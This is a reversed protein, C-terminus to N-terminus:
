KVALWHEAILSLEITDISCDGNMDLDLDLSCDVQRWHTSLTDIDQMDVRDDRTMDGMHAFTWPSLYSGDIVQQSIAPGQWAVALHDGGTGEKQIVEIYYKQGQQLAISPSQQQSFKNWQYPNTWGPVSAVVVANYALADPSIWLQCNDDGAIWFTYNGTQPPTLYGRIRSGYTNTWDMPGELRPLYECGTPQNPYAANGTLSPVDSGSIGLWYERLVSGLGSNVLEINPQSLTMGEGLYFGPHPPQNYGCPQWAVALRYQPDHMLTYIRYTTPITTTYLRVTRNDSSRWLAEERWDGVIDASLVPNGKTWNNSYTGSASLLTSVTRNASNWKTITGYWQGTSGAHDLLERQLDGDWWIMFNMALSSTGLEVGKSTYMPCNTSGWVEYGLHTPDIDGACARGVDASNAYEFIVEGTAADTLAAGTVATEVCRWLELGPRQPDMDSLHMADGHGQGTSYLGSGDHDVCMGGYVIEDKGDGDVDGVSLNHNGQAAYEPHDESTFHWLKTLQGNRYNWGELKTLAYIGRCIVLSPKHGDLYAVAIHFKNARHGYTDGWQSLSVRPIYETRAIEMGTRGEFVSLFEPGADLFDDAAGYGRYDIIGDADTDGIAAGTADVTGECTRLAVEAFGDGDLDYVIPNIEEKTLLNPGLNIRWLFAGNLRYAEIVPYEEDDASFRKIVLEYAGDGDLDGVAGDNIEYSWDTDGPVQRVAVSYYPNTQVSVVRSSEQEQGSLVARISYVDYLSASSDVYNTSNTIPFTNVKVAGRYINFSVDQPDTGLLRWSLYNATGSRVAVLGRDLREMQRPKLSAVPTFSWVQGEIVGWSNVTNVKWYYTTDISLAYPLPKTNGSVSGIYQLAGPSTGFYVRSQAAHTGPTWSLTTVNVDEAGDWPMPLAAGKITHATIRTRNLAAQYDIVIAAGAKTTILGNDVLSQFWDVDNGGIYCGGGEEIYLHGTGGNTSFSPRDSFYVIGKLVNLRGNGGSNRGIYMRYKSEFTGGDLTVQGRAGDGIYVYGRSNMWGNYIYIDGNLTNNGYPLFEGGRMTFVAQETTNFSNPRTSLTTNYIPNYLNGVGVWLLDATSDRVDTSPEWNSPDTFDSSINGVWVSDASLVPSLVVMLLAVMSRTTLTM